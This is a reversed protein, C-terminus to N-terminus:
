DALEYLAEWKDLEWVGNKTYLTIPLADETVSVSKWDTDECHARATFFYPYGQLSFGIVLLLDFKCRHIELKELWEKQISMKSKTTHKAEIMWGEAVLQVDGKKNKNGSGPTGKGGTASIVM